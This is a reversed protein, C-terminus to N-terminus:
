ATVVAPTAVLGPAGSVTRRAIRTLVVTALAGLGVTVAGAALITSRAGIAEALVGGALAGLPATLALLFRYSANVRGLLPDPILRQRVSMTLVNWVLVGATDLVLLLGVVVISRSLAIAVDALGTVMAASGIVVAFPAHRLRPAVWTGLLGGAASGIMLLGYGTPGLHLDHTAFIVLISVLTYAAVTLSATLLAVTRLLPQHWLWSLGASTSRRMQTVASRMTGPTPTDTVTRTSPIVAVLVASVAFSVADFGFALGATAAVLVGGLAPGALDRGLIETASLRGIGTELDVDDLLSPALAMSSSDVVAEAASMLVTALYLLPITAREGLVLAALAAGVAARFWDLRVRIRVRDFRDALAGGPLLFVLWPLRDAVVIGTILRPDHTLQTAILPLAVLRVGDGLNSIGTAALLRTFAKVPEKQWIGM